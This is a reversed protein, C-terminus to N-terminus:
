TLSTKIQTLANLEGEEQKLRIFIEFPEELPTPGHNIIECSELVQARKKVSLIILMMIIM